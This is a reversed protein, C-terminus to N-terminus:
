HSRDHEVTAMKAIAYSFAAFLGGVGIAAVPETVAAVGTAVVLGGAAALTGDPYRLSLHTM